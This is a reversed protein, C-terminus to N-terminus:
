QVVQLEKAFNTLVNEADFVDGIVVQDEIRIGFEGALYVGPECTVINGTELVAESKGSINPLEHIELGTGHGLSHTFFDASKKLNTRVFGDLDVVKAGSVFQQLSRQQVDFLKEFFDAYKKDVTDGFWFNRTIDSHYGNYVAGCDILIPENKKLKRDTPAHHAIASHEGFAVISDFAIGFKGEARIMNELQFCVERETVGAKFFGRIKELVQGVHAAAIRTNEIETEVKIARFQEFIKKQPELDANLFWQKYQEFQALSVSDEVAIKGRIKKALRSSFNADFLQFHFRNKEALKKAKEAYRSDTILIMQGSAQVIVMGFSGVFETLWAINESKTVLFADCNNESLWNQVKSLCTM